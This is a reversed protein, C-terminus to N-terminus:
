RKIIVRPNEKCLRDCIAAFESQKYLKEPARIIVNGHCSNLARRVLCEVDASSKPSVTTNQVVTGTFLEGICLVLNAAGLIGLFIFLFIGIYIGNM